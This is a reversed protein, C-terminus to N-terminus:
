GEPAVMVHYALIPGDFLDGHKNDISVMLWEGENWEALITLVGFASSGFSGRWKVWYFGPEEPEGFQWGLSTEDPM